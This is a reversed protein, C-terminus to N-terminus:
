SALMRRKVKWLSRQLWGAVTLPAKVTYARGNTRPDSNDSASFHLGNGWHSYRGNGKNRLVAHMQHAPGLPKDDEFLILRSASPPSKSDGYEVDSPAFVGLERLDVLFGHKGESKMSNPNLPGYQVSTLTRQFASRVWARPIRGLRSLGNMVGTAWPTRFEVLNTTTPSQREAFQHLLENIVANSQAEVDNWDAGMDTVHIRICRRLYEWHHADTNRELFELHKERPLPTDGYYGDLYEATSFEVGCMEDSDTVVHIQGVDPCCRRMFDGDLNTSLRAERSIPRVAVPHLHSARILMGQSGVLWCYHGAARNGGPGWIFARATPHMHGLILGALERGTLRFATDAQSFKERVMPLATEATIRPGALVVARIGSTILEHMRRFSGDSWLADPSLFVFACDEKRGRGLGRNHCETMAAYAHGLYLDDISEFLVPMLSRLREFAPSCRIREADRSPTFIHYTCRDGPLSPLNAPALQSPLAFHIFRSVFQEGWVPLIMRYNFAM